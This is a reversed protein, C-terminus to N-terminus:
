KSAGSAGEATDKQSLHTSADLFRRKSGRSSPDANLESGEPKMERPPHESNEEKKKHM